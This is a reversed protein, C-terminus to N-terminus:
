TVPPKRRDRSALVRELRGRNYRQVAICPVNAVVAYVVMVAALWRPNWLVFLPAFALVAWHTLEARRTEVVFRRLHQSDSTRIARKSFGAGFITGAEPLRDKWARIHWRRQYWRGGDEFAHLRTIRGDHELRAAPWRLAAYGTAVGIVTWAVCDVLVAWGPSLEVVPM